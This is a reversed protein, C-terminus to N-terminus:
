QDIKPNAHFEKAMRMLTKFEPLETAFVMRAGLNNNACYQVLSNYKLMVDNEDNPNLRYGKRCNKVEVIITDNMVFDPYYSRQNGNKDQWQISPRGKFREIKVSKQKAWLIFCLEALSQYRMEYAYGQYKSRYAGGEGKLIKAAYEPNKWQEKLRTTQKNRYNSEKWLDRAIQRYREKVGPLSHRRMQSIKQKQKTEEKNQAIIQAQRNREKWEDTSTVFKHYHEDCLQKMSHKRGIVRYRPLTYEKKCIECRIMVTIKRPFSDNKSDEFEVVRLTNTHCPGLMRYVFERTVGTEECILHIKEEHICNCGAFMISLETIRKIVVNETEVKYTRPMIVGAICLYTRSPTGYM